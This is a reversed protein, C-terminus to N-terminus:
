FVDIPLAIPNILTKGKPSCFTEGLSFKLKTLPFSFNRLCSGFTKM